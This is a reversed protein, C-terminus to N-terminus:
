FMYPARATKKLTERSYGHAKLTEDDLMLLAGAVYHSAQRARAEILSDLANRFFGRTNGSKTM